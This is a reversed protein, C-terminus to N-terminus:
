RALRGSVDKANKLWQLAKCDSRILVKTGELYPRFHQTAWVIALAERETASYNREAPSLTRSAYAIVFKKKDYDQALVAGLGYECADLELIFPENFNPTNM